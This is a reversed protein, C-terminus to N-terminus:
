RVAIAPQMNAECLRASMTVMDALSRAKMKRMAHGRHAKVTIESIDLEGAVQKNMLGKVVLGIVQRERVSLSTYRDQLMRMEAQREIATQSHRLAAGVASLIDSGRLPKTLFDLAGAKMARVTMSVNGYGSIFVIPMDSRESAIRTQLELGNIEPLSFDLLLCSPALARPCALFAEASCFTQARWGASLVLMELSLQVSTDDDVIFVIPQAHIM